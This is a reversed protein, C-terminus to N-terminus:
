SDGLRCVGKAACDVEPPLGNRLSNREQLINKVRRRQGARIAAYSVFPVQIIRFSVCSLAIRQSIRTMGTVPISPSNERLGIAHVIVSKQKEYLVNRLPSGM